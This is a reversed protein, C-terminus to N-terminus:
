GPPSSPAMTSETPRRAVAIQWVAALLVCAAVTAFAAPYGGVAAILGFLPPGIVAGSFALATQVAAVAAVQGPPSLHAFEAISVGNWSIVVTGYAFVILGILWHPMAPSILATAAAGVYADNEPWPKSSKLLPMRGPCCSM